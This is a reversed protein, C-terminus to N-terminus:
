EFTWGFLAGYFEKLKEPETAHIEFHVLSDM